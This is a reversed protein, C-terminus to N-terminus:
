QKLATGRVGPKKKRYLARAHGARQVSLEYVHRMHKHLYSSRAWASGAARRGALAVSRAVVWGNRFCAHARQRLRAWESVRGVAVRRGCACLVVAQAEGRCCLVTNSFGVWPGLTQIDEICTGLQAPVIRLRQAALVVRPLCLRRNHRHCAGCNHRHCRRLGHRRRRDRATAPRAQAGGAALSGASGRRALRLPPQNSTRAACQTSAMKRSKHCLTDTDSSVGGRLVAPLKAQVPRM